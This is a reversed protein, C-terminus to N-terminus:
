KVIEGKNNVMSVSTISIGGQGTVKAFSVKALPVTGSFPKTSIMVFRITGPTNTNAAMMADSNDGSKTVTPSSLTASDYSITLDFGAIDDVNNGQIIFEGASSPIVTVSTGKNALIATAPTSKSSPITAETAAKGALENQTTKGASVCGSLIAPIALILVTLRHKQVNIFKM